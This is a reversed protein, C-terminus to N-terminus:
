SCRGDAFREFRLPGYRVGLAILVEDGVPHPPVIETAGDITSLRHAWGLTTAM